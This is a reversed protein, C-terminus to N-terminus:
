REAHIVADLKRIEDLILASRPSDPPGQLLTSLSELQPAVKPGLAPAAQGLGSKLEILEARAPKWTEVPPPQGLGTATALLRLRGVARGLRYGLHAQPNTDLSEEVTVSLVETRRSLMGASAGGSEIAKGLTNAFAVLGGTSSDDGLSSSLLPALGRAVSAVQPRNAPSRDLTPAFTELYSTSCGLDYAAVVPDIGQNTLATKLDPARLPLNPQLADILKAHVEAPLAALWPEGRGPAPAPPEPPKDAAVPPPPEPLAVRDVPPVPPADPERVDGPHPRPHPKPVPPVQAIQPLPMRATPPPPEPRSFLLALMVVVVAASGALALRWALSGQLVRQLWPLAPPEAAPKPKPAGIAVAKEVLAVPASKPFQGSEQLARDLSLIATLCGSCEELHLEVQQRDTGELLGDRYAAIQEDSLHSASQGSPLLLRLGTLMGWTAKCSDCSLVHTRMGKAKQEDLRGAVLSELLNKDPCGM